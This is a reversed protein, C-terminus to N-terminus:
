AAPFQLVDAKTSSCFQSWLEMLERRKKLAAKRRYAKQTASGVSHALALEAIDWAFDTDDGAWDRFTSRFGHVSPIPDVRACARKLTKESMPRGTPRAFVYDDPEPTADGKITTLIAMAATSLPVVHVKRKGKRGKMRAKPITGLQRDLNIEGWRALRTETTRTASLICFALARAGLLPDRALQAMFTRMDEADLAPYHEVEAIDGPKDLSHELRDQWAAPNPGPPRYGQKPAAAWGLIQQLQGRLRSATVTKTTWIPDLVKLIAHEDIDAVRMSGIISSAYRKLAQRWQRAYRPDTWRGERAKIFEEACQDFTIDRARETRERAINEAKARRRQEVPDIGQKALARAKDREARAAALSWEPYPGIGYQRDRGDFYVRAVFYKTVTGDAGPSVQCYLGDGDFLANTTLTGDPRIKPKAHKITLDTLPEPKRRPPM